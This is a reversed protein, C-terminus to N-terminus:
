YIFLLRLNPKPECTHADVKWELVLGNLHTFTEEPVPEGPNDRVFEVSRYFPQTHTHTGNLYVALTIICNLVCNISLICVLSQCMGSSIYM